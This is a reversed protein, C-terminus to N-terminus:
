TLRELTAKASKSLSQRLSDIEEWPDRQLAALRAPANLITYHDSPIDASLEDWTLPMSVPAGARARTSYAVVSTAGRGNRLYDIFIKGRRAAKSMNSTYRAPDAAVIAEAVRRCFEKAEDWEHRRTIPAVVHLGKGGTTKVFSQLDLGALFERVQRASEVVRGWPVAPDPDLDFVLRDPREIADARSGWVHIELTGIQALSILGPVDDVVVYKRTASKERVPIQRLEKPVGVTPHKQYFCEKHRGDPCRVLVVPRGAVHPLIWEAIDRYYAALDLKTLGQDPYLVKDPSTLRVGHFKKKRADYGQPAIASREEEM